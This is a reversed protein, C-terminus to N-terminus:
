YSVVGFAFKVNRVFLDENKVPTYNSRFAFAKVAFMFLPILKVSIPM